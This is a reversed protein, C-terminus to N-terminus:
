APNDQRQWRCFVRCVLVRRQAEGALAASWRARDGYRRAQDVAGTTNGRRVPVHEVYRRAHRGLYGARERAVAHETGHFVPLLDCSDRQGARSHMADEFLGPMSTAVAQNAPSDWGATQDFRAFLPSSELYPLISLRWSLEVTKGNERISNPTALTHYTDHYSHCALAIQRMSNM